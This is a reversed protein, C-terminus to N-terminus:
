RFFRSFFYMGPVFGIGPVLLALCFIWLLRLEFWQSTPVSDSARRGSFWFVRLYSFFNETHIITNWGRSFVGEMWVFDWVLSVFFIRPPFRKRFRQSAKKGSFTPFGEEGPSGSREPSRALRGRRSEKRREGSASSSTPAREKASLVKHEGSRWRVERSRLVTGRGGWM